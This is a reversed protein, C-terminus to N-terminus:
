CTKVFRIVAEVESMLENGRAIALVTPFLTEVRDALNKCGGFRESFRDNKLLILPGPFHRSFVPYAERL